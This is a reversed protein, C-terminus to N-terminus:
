AKRAAAWQVLLSSSRHDFENMGVRLEFGQFIGTNGDDIDVDVPKYDVWKVVQKWNAQHGSSHLVAGVDCLDPNSDENLGSNKLGKESSSLCRYFVAIILNVWEEGCNSYM